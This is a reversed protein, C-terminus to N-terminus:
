AFGVAALVLSLLASFMLAPWGIARAANANAKGAAIGIAIAIAIAPVPQRHFSTELNTM